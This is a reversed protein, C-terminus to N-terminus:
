EDLIIVDLAKARIMDNLQPLMEMKVKQWDNLEVDILDILEDKVQIAAATPPYDNTGMQTLSNIHALKNTLRIPFNLPDQGSRNKTQYLEKEVKTMVSDVESAYAKIEEDEIRKTYGNMQTRLSRIDIIAQH